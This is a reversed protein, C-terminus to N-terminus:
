SIDNNGNNIIQEQLNDIIDESHGKVYTRTLNVALHPLYFIPWMLNAKILGKSAAEYIKNRMCKACAIHHDYGWKYAVFLFTFDPISYSKISDSEQGCEPCLIPYTELKKRLNYLTNM